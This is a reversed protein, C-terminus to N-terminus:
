LFFIRCRITIAPDMFAFWAPLAPADYRKCSRRHVFIPGVAAYPQAEDFPRYPLVLKEEGEAILEICHRCSPRGRPWVSSPRRGTRMPAAAASGRPRM